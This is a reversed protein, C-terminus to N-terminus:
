ARNENQLIRYKIEANSWDEPTDIDQVQNESLVYGYTKANLLSKNKFLEFVNSFYFMGADYYKPVLDQSRIHLSAPDDPRLLNNEIRMAWEIPVPYKCVPIVSDYQGIFAYAKRLIAGTLFPVCPYICCVTDFVKERKQYELLVEEMVDFTTATDSANKESRLFPVEAGYQRAIEAIEESDASVMVTDFIGAEKAAKIAYSIMPKGMFDKINKKPIRKSGSRAPIVAINM